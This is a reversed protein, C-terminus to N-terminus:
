AAFRLIGVEAHHKLAGDALSQVRASIAANLYYEGCHSRVEAPVDKIVVIIRRARADRYGAWPRNRGDQLHRM